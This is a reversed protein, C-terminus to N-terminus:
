YEITLLPSGVSIEDMGTEANRHVAIQLAVRHEGSLTTVPLGSVAYTQSVTTDDAFGEVRELKLDTDKRIRKELDLLAANLAPEGAAEGSGLVTTAPLAGGQIAANWGIQVGEDALSEGALQQVGSLHELTEATGGVSEIRFVVYYKGEGQATVALKSPLGEMTGEASYVTHEQVTKQKAASLGLRSSLVGAAEEPSLLTKWEGQWKVTFQFPDDTIAIGISSLRELQTGASEIPDSVVAQREANKLRALGVLMVACVIIVLSYSWLKRKLM